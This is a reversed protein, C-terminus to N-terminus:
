RRSNTSQDFAVSLQIGVDFDNAIAAAVFAEEEAVANLYSFLDTGVCARQVIVATAWDAVAANLEGVNFVADLASEDFFAFVRKLDCSVL